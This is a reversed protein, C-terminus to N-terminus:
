RVVPLKKGNMTSHVAALLEPFFDREIEFATELVLFAEFGQGGFIAIKGADKSTTLIYRAGAAQRAAEIAQVESKRYRHHDRFIMENVIRAGIKEVMERFRQPHAIGSVLLVPQDRVFDLPLLEQSEKKVLARWGIGQLAGSFIKAATHQRCQEAMKDWNKQGGTNLIVFDARRLSSAPERMLFTPFRWLSSLPTQADILVIDIDRQLQRHQFGDDVLILDPSFKEVAAEAAIKKQQDVVVPVGACAQAMLLPEDGAEAIDALIQKEDSVVALGKKQRRYGRAVIVVKWGHARLTKALFITAPTKGTGGPSLNGISIVLAPLKQSKFIKHDYCFNRISVVLRYLWLIPLLPILLIHRLLPM